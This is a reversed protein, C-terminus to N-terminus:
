RLDDGHTTSYWAAKRHSRHPTPRITVHQLRALLAVDNEYVARSSPHDPPEPQKAAPQRLSPRLCARSGTIM